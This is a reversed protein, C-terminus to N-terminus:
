IWPSALGQQRKMKMAQRNMTGVPRHIGVVNLGEDCWGLVVGGSKSTAPSGLYRVLILRSGVQCRLTRLAKLSDTVARDKQSLEFGQRFRSSM